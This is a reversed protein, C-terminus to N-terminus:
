RLGALLQRRSAFWVPDLDGSHAFKQAESFGRATSEPNCFKPGCVAIACGFGEAAVITEIVCRREFRRKFPEIVYVFGLRGVGSDLIRGAGIQVIEVVLAGLASVLAVARM